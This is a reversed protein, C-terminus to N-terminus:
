QIINLIMNAIVIKYKKIANLKKKNIIKSKKILKWNRKKSM